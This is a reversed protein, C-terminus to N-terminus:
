YCWEKMLPSHTSAQQEGISVGDFATRVLPGSALAVVWLPSTWGASVVTFGKEAQLKVTARGIGFSGGTVLVVKEACNGKAFEVQRLENVLTAGTRSPM